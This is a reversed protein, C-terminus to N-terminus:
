LDETPVPTLKETTDKIKRKLDELKKGLSKKKSEDNTADAGFYERELQDLELRLDNLDRLEKGDTWNQTVHVKTDGIGNPAVPNNLVIKKKSTTEPKQPDPQHGFGEDGAYSVNVGELFKNWTKFIESFNDM